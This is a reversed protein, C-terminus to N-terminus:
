CGAEFAAVYLDFDVGNVFDNGDFDASLDGSEFAAVFLDFDLGNLFGNGDFDALCCDGITLMAATSVVGGCANSVVCDYLGVDAAGVAVISYSVQDAGPIPLSEFRWQYGSAGSAQITFTVSDGPCAIKDAPQIEIVATCPGAGFEFAGMDVLPPMGNGTNATGPDDFFRNLGALDTAIGSPVQTNDGADICPSGARLNFDGTAANVLLPDM